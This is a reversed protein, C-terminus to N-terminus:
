DFLSPHLDRSVPGQRPLRTVKRRTGAAPEGFIEIMQQHEAESQGNLRLTPRLTDGMLITGGGLRLRCLDVNDRMIDVGYIDQLAESNSMGFHIVKIWKAADLFQGDGCAPDLVTQGPAFISLDCYSLMEIVLESPTFIEASARVREVTREVGAMYDHTELRAAVLNWLDGSM